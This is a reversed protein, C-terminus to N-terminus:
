RMLQVPEDPEIARWSMCRGTQYEPEFWFMVNGEATRYDWGKVKKHKGRVSKRIVSELDEMADEHDEASGAPTEAMTIKFKGDVVRVVVTPQQLILNAVTACDWDMEKNLTSRNCVSCFFDVTFHSEFTVSECANIISCSSIQGPTDSLCRLVLCQRTTNKVKRAATLAVCCHGSPCQILGWGVVTPSEDLFKGYNMITQLAEPLCQQDM